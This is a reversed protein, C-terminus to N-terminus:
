AHCCRDALTPRQPRWAVNGNAHERVASPKGLCGVCSQVRWHRTQWQPVNMSAGTNPDKMYPFQAKGTEEVVQKRWTPGDKPCPYYLVNIDLISIAERM